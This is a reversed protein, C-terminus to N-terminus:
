LSTLGKRTLSMRQASSVRRETRRPGIYRYSAITNPGEVVERVRNLEDPVYNIMRGGPYELSLKNGLGDYASNTTRGNLTEEVVNSLSDHRFKVISNDNEAYVLRSRGDHKFDTFTTTYMVGIGPTISKNTLRNLLDFTNNVVTGAADTTEIVNDHVDYDFSKETGDAYITCTVRNLADYQFRTTNGNDDTSSILRGSKDFAMQVVIDFPDNADAGDKDMDRIIQILRGIGDFERRTQNNLADTVLTCNSRSDYAFDTTNNNNDIVKILRDLGDYEYSTVYTENPEGLDSEDVVTLATINSNKDYSYATTNDRADTVLNLRGATDYEWFTSHGNDDTTRVIQSNDNYFFRTVSNGDGIPAQTNPDFHSVESRILRNLSDYDYRSEYLRVNGDSGGFDTLEGYRCTSIRNGAVDYHIESENGMADHSAILRNFGDSDLTTIRPTGELGQLVKKLNGNGDYDYQTTSQASDGPAHIIQFILNREDYLTRVVNNPENGNTAEGYRVLTRNGNDDYEFEIVVSNGDYSDVEDTQRIPRNLFDYDYTTTIHTNSQLVSIEDKDVNYNQVDIRVLNNNLDYYFDREYRVGNGDTVERSIRRGVQNLQNVVYKTDKGNPDIVRIVNGVEDYEYTTPLAFNNSDVIVNKLYGFNPDNPETYYTYEDRRRHGSRNGPRIHAIMQGFEKHEWEEVIDNDPGPIVRTRHIRNGNPDYGYLTLYGRGNVYRTPFNTGRNFNPDYEFQEVIEDQDSVNAFTGSFYHRERLNGRSRRPTNPDLDAEYVNTIYNGNPYTVCTLLSDKNYEFRTEFSDPDSDGRLKNFPPNVNPGLSTPQNPDARGTYQHSVVLENRNSFFHESVNGMRDNIVTQM